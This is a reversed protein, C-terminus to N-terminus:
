TAIPKGRAAEVVARARARIEPSMRDILGRAKEGTQHMEAGLERGLAHGDRVRLAALVGAGILVGAALEFGGFLGLGAAGLVTIMPHRRAFGPERTVQPAQPAQPESKKEETESKEHKAM